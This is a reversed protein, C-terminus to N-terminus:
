SEGPGVVTVAQVLQGEARDETNPARPNAEENVDDGENSRKVRRKVRQVASIEAGLVEEHRVEGCGQEDEQVAAPFAVAPKDVGLVSRQVDLDLVDIDIGVHALTLPTYAADIHGVLLPTRADGLHFTCLPSLTDLTPHHGTHSVEDLPM